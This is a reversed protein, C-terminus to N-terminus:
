HLPLKRPTRSAPMSILQKRSRGPLVTRKTAAPLLQSERATSLHADSEPTVDHLARGKESQAL